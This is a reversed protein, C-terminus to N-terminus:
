SPHPIVVLHGPAIFIYQGTLEEIVRRLAIQLSGCSRRWLDAVLVPFSQPAFSFYLSLPNNIPFLCDGRQM